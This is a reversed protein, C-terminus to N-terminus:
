ARMRALAPSLPVNGHGTLLQNERSGPGIEKRWRQVKKDTYIWTAEVYLEPGMSNHNKPGVRLSCTHLSRLIYM